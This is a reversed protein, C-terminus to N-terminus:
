VKNRERKMGHDTLRVRTSTLVSDQGATLGSGSSTLLGREEGPLPLVVLSLLCVCVYLRVCMYVEHRHNNVDELMRVHACM